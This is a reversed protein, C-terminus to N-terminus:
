GILVGCHKCYNPDSRKQPLLVHFLYFSPVGNLNSQVLHTCQIWTSMAYASFIKVAKCIFWMKNSEENPKPWVM